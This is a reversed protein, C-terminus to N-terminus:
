QNILKQAITKLSLSFRLKFANESCRIFEFREIVIHELNQRTAYQKIPSNLTKSSTPIILKKKNYFKEYLNQMFMIPLVIMIRTITFRFHTSKISKLPAYRMYLDAITLYFKSVIEYTLSPPSVARYTSSSTTSSIVSLSFKAAKTAKLSISEVSILASLSSKHFSISKAASAHTIIIHTLYKIEEKKIAIDADNFKKEPTLLQTLDSKHTAISKIASSSTTVPRTNFKIRENKIATNADNFITESIFLPMLSSRTAIKSKILSLQQCDQTRLHEHLKNKNDFIEECHKCSSKGCLVM